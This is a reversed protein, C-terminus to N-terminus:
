VKCFEWLFEEGSACRHKLIESGALLGMPLWLFMWISDPHTTLKDEGTIIAVLAFLLLAFYTVNRTQFFYRLSQGVAVAILALLLLLEM